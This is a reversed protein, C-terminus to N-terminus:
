TFDSLTYISKGPGSLWEAGCEGMVIEDELRFSLYISEAGREKDYPYIGNEFAFVMGPRVKEKGGSEIMPYEVVNLGISHGSTHVVYEGYESSKLYNEIIDNIEAVTMGPKLAAAGAELSGKALEAMRRYSEPLEKGAYFVRTLDSAYGDIHGSIDVLVLDKPQIVRDTAYSNFTSLKERGSNITLYSIHDIGSRCMRSAIGAALEKETTRGPRIDRFSDVIARETIYGATRIRDIEWPTKVMRADMIAASGDTLRIGDLRERLEELHEIPWQFSLGHGGEYGMVKVPYDLSAIFQRVGDAYDTCDMKGYNRSTSGSCYIRTIWSCNKVTSKELYRLVIAPEGHKPVLVYVPRFLSSLYWSRYGSAYFISGSSSLLLMDLGHEEMASQLKAVHLLYEEQPFSKLIDM